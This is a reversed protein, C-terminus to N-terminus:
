GWGAAGCWPRVERASARLDGPAMALLHPAGAAVRSADAGPLEERLAVMADAAGASELALRVQWPSARRPRPLSPGPPPRPARAPPAAAAARYLARPAAAALRLAARGRRVLETAATGPPLPGAPGGDPLVRALLEVGRRV